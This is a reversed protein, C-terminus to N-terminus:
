LRRAIARLTGPAVEDMVQGHAAILRVLDPTDALELLHAELAKRDQVPVLRGLPSGRPGGTSGMLKYVAGFLGPLHALNFVLDNFVLTAGDSSRVRM